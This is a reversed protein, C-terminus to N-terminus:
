ANTGTLFKLLEQRSLEPQDTPFIHSARPLIVLKAYHIRDALIRANGPPVLRDTAGHIVLTRAVIRPLRDYSQWSVIALMQELVGLRPTPNRRLVELDQEVRGHPTHEDYIFPLLAAIRKQRPAFLLPLLARRVESGAHVAHRGGCTTCGLVLRRVRDPFSLALEQAIMGGMSLGLIHASPIAAADLVCTADRAMTLISFPGLLIDSKGVGRNDYVITRFYQAMFSRLDRWMALPFGLGMVMLLPEGHGEEEWYIRVQNNFAYPVL